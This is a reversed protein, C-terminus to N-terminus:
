GRDRANTGHLAPATPPNLTQNPQQQPQRDRQV